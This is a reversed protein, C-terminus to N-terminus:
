CVYDAAVEVGVGFVGVFDDNTDFTAQSRLPMRNARRFGDTSRDFVGNPDKIALLFDIDKAHSTDIRIYGDLCRDFREAFKDVLALDTANSQALDARIGNASCMCHM